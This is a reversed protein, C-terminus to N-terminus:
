LAQCVMLSLDTIVAAMILSLLLTQVPYTTSNFSWKNNEKGFNKALRKIQILYMRFCFFLKGMIEMMSEYM